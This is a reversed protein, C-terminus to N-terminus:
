IDISVVAERSNFFCNCSNIFLGSEPIACQDSCSKMAFEHSNRFKGYFIQNRKHDGILISKSCSLHVNEINAPNEAPSTSSLSIKLHSTRM